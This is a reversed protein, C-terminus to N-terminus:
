PSQWFGSLLAALAGPALLPINHGVGPLEEYQVRPNRRRMAEAVRRRLERSREGRILLAPIEIREWDRWYNRSRHLEVAQKLAARDALWSASGDEAVAFRARAVEMLEESTASGPGRPRAATGIATEIDPYRTPLQDLAEQTEVWNTRWAEPGIDVIAVSRFREPYRAAAVLAVRGGMSHGVLHPRDLGLADCAALLDSVYDTVAYGAAPKPSHGHGRLDPAFSRPREEGLAAVTPGWAEAIGTLGHLFIAAPHAGAWELVRFRGVGGLTIQHVHPKV